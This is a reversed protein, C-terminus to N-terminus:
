LIIAIQSRHTKTKKKVLKVKILINYLAIHLYNGGRWTPINNNNNNDSNNSKYLATHIAGRDRFSQVCSM